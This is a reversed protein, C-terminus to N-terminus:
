GFDILFQTGFLDFHTWIPELIMAQRTWVSGSRVSARLAWESSLKPYWKSVFNPKFNLKSVIVLSYANQVEFFYM